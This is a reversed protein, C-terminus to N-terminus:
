GEGYASEIPNGCHDCILDTSEWNVDVAEVQWGDRYERRTSEIIQRANDKACEKCLCGGDSCIAFLPYGGPWAYPHRVFEKFSTTKM